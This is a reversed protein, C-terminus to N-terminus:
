KCSPSAWNSFTLGPTKSPWVFQSVSCSRNWFMMEATRLFILMKSTYRQLHKGNTQPKKRMLLLTYTKIYCLTHNRNTFLTQKTFINSTVSTLLLFCCPTDNITLIFWGHLYLSCATAPPSPPLYPFSAQGLHWLNTVTKKRRKEKRGLCGTEKKTM